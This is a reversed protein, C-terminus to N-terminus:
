INSFCFSVFFCILCANYMKFDENYFIWINLWTWCHFDSTDKLENGKKSRYPVLIEKHWEEDGLKEAHLNSSQAHFCHYYLFSRLSQRRTFYNSSMHLHLIFSCFLPGGCHHPFQLNLSSQPSERCLLVQCHVLDCSPYWCSWLLWCAWSARTPLSLSVLEPPTLAPWNWCIICMPWLLTFLRGPSVSWLFAPVGWLLLCRDHCHVETQDHDFHLASTQLHGCLPWLGDRHPHLGWDGWLLAHHLATDHLWPLFHDEKSGALWCDVQPDCHLHLLPRRPFTVWFSICPSSWLNVPSLLFWSLYTESWFQLM